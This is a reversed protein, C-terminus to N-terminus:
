PVGHSSAWQMVKLRGESAAATCTLEDFPCGNDVLWELLDPHGGGAAGAAITPNWM